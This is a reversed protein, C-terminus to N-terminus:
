EYVTFKFPKHVRKGSPSGSQPNTPVTVNHTFQQVLMEDDYGELGIEGISNVSMASATILGQAEGEITIFCPTSM